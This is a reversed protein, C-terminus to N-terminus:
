YDTSLFWTEHPEPTIGPSRGPLELTMFPLPAPSASLAAAIIGFNRLDGEVAAFDAENSERLLTSTVSDIKVLQDNRAYDPLKDIESLLDGPHALREALEAAKAQYSDLVADLETLRDTVTTLFPLIHDNLATDVREIGDWLAQPIHKAVLAPMGNQIAALEGSIRVTATLLNHTTSGLGALRDTIKTMAGSSQYFGMSNGQDVIWDIMEGPDAQWKTLRDSINDLFLQTRLAKQLKITERNKGTLVGWTEAGVNVANLLHGVGDVGWGLAASFQSVKNMLNDWFEQFGPFLKDIVNALTWGTIAYLIDNAVKIAGVVATIIKFAAVLFLWLSPSAHFYARLIHYEADRAILATGRVLLIERSAIRISLEDQLIVCSGRISERISATDDAVFTLYNNVVAKTDDVATRIREENM